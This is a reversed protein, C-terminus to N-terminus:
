EIEVITSTLGILLSKIFFDWSGMRASGALGAATYEIFTKICYVLSTRGAPELHPDSVVFAGVSPLM